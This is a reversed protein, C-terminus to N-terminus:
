LCVKGVQYYEKYWDIFQPIGKSIDTTPQFNLLKISKDIDAVIPNIETTEIDVSIIKNNKVKLHDQRLRKIQPEVWGVPNDLWCCPLMYGTSTYALAKKDLCKPNVKEM